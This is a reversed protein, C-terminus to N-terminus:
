GANSSRKVSSSGPLFTSGRSARTKKLRRSILNGAPHHSNDRSVGAVAIRKQTLFDHVRTELTTTTM